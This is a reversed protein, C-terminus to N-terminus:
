ASLRVQYGIARRILRLAYDEEVKAAREPSPLVVVLGPWRREMDRFRDAPAGAVLREDVVIVGTGPDRVLEHLARQLGEPALTVQSVGALAFGHRADAPTLVVIHKM